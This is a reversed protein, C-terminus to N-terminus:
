IHILSLVVTTHGSSPNNTQDFATLQTGNVFLKIRDDATSNDSDYVCCIHYWASFDRFVATTIRRGVNSTQYDEFDLRDSNDFQIITANNSDQVASFFDSHGSKSRKVWGSWTWKKRNSASSPTRNLHASDGSNFRLSRTAVAGAAAAEAATALLPSSLNGPVTM